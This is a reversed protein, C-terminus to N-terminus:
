AEAPQRVDQASSAGNQSHAQNSQSVRSQVAMMIANGVAVKAMDFLKGLLMTGWGSRATSAVEEQSPALSDLSHVLSAMRAHMSEGRRPTVAAAAAFGAAAAVGLTLWPHERAWLRPDAAQALDAKIDDLAAFMAAKAEASEDGLVDRESM